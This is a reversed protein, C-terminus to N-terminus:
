FANLKSMILFLSILDVLQSHTRNAMCLQAVMEQRLIEEESAGTSSLTHTNFVLHCLFLTKIYFPYNIEITMRHQSVNFQVLQKSLM